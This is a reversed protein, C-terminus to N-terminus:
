VHCIEQTIIVSSDRWTLNSACFAELYKDSFIKFFNGVPGIKSGVEVLEFCCNLVLRLREPRHILSYIFLDLNIVFRSFLSKENGGKWTQCKTRCVVVAVVWGALWGCPWWSGVKQKFYFLLLSSLMCCNGSHMWVLEEAVLQAFSCLSWNM